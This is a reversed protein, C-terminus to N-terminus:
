QRDRQVADTCREQAIHGRPALHRRNHRDATRQVRHDARRRLTQVDPREVTTAPGHDLGAAGLLTTDSRFDAGAVHHGLGDRERREEGTAADGSCLQGVLRAPHRRDGCRGPHASDVPAWASRPTAAPRRTRTPRAPGAVRRHHRPGAPDRPPGARAARRLRAAVGAVARDPRATGGLADRAARVAAGIHAASIATEAGLLDPRVLM